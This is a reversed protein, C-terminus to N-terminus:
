CEQAAGSREAGIRELAVVAAAAAPLRLLFLSTTAFALAESDKRGERRPKLRTTTKPMEGSCIRGDTMGDTRAHM